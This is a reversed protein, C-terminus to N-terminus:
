NVTRTTPFPAMTRLTSEFSLSATDRSFPELAGLLPEDQRSSDNQLSPPHQSYVVVNNIEDHRDSHAANFFRRRSLTFHSASRTPTKLAYSDGGGFFVKGFGLLLISSSEIRNKAIRRRRKVSCLIQACFFSSDAEDRRRRHSEM